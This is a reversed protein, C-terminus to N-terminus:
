NLTTCGECKFCSQLGSAERELSNTNISTELATAIAKELGASVKMVPVVVAPKKSILSRARIPNTTTSATPQLKNQRRSRGQARKRQKRKEKASQEAATAAMLCIIIALKM